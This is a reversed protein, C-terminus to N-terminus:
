TEYSAMTVDCLQMLLYAGSLLYMLLRSTALLLCGAFIKNQLFHQLM